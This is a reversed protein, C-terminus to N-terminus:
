CTQAAAKGDSAFVSYLATSFKRNGRGLPSEHITRPNDRSDISSLFQITPIPFVFM